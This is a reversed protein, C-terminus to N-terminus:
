KLLLDGPVEGEGPMRVRAGSWMVIFPEGRKKSRGPRKNARFEVHEGGELKLPLTKTKAVSGAFVATGGRRATNMIFQVHHLLLTCPLALVRHKVLEVAQQAPHTDFYIAGATGREASNEQFISDGKLRVHANRASIGGGHMGATNVKFMLGQGLLQAGLYLAAGGGLGEEEPAGNFEFRTGELQAKTLGSLLLGGGTFQGKNKRFVVASSKLTSAMEAWGFVAVGGGMRSRNGEFVLALEATGKLIARSGLLAMGGGAISAGNKLFLCEALKLQTRRACVAGGLGDLDLWRPLEIEDVQAHLRARTQARNRKFECRTIVVAGSMRELCLAGGRNAVNDAFICHSLVLRCAKAYVGAGSEARNHKLVCGLVRTTFGHEERGCRDMSIAGGGFGEIACTIVSLEMNMGCWLGVQKTGERSIIHCGYVGQERGPKFLVAGRTDADALITVREPHDISDLTRLWSLREQVGLDGPIRHNVVSVRSPVQVSTQYIGPALRVQVRCDGRHALLHAAELAAGITLFPSEQANVRADLAELEDSAVLSDPDVYLIPSNQMGPPCYFGDKTTTFKPAAEKGQAREEHALEFENALLVQAMLSPSSTEDLLSDFQPDHTGLGLDERIDIPEVEAPEPAADRASRARGSPAHDSPGSPVPDARQLDGEEGRVELLGRAFWCLMSLVIAVLFLAMPGRQDTPPNAEWCIARAAKGKPTNSLEEATWVGADALAQAQAPWTVSCNLYAAGTLALALVSIAFFAISLRAWLENANM